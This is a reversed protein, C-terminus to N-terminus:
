ESKYVSSAPQNYCSSEGLYQFVNIANPSAIAKVLVTLTHSVGMRSSASDRTAQSDIGVLRLDISYLICGVILPNQSQVQLFLRLCENGSALETCTVELSLLGPM